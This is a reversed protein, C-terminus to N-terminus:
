FNLNSRIIGLTETSVHKVWLDIDYFLFPFSYLSSVIIIIETGFASGVHM